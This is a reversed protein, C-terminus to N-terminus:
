NSVQWRGESHTLNMQWLRTASGAAGGSPGKDSPTSFQKAPDSSMKGGFARILSAYGQARTRRELDSIAPDVSVGVFLDRATQVMLRPNLDKTMAFVEEIAQAGSRIESLREESTELRLGQLSDAARDVRAVFSDVTEKTPDYTEMLIKQLEEVGPAASAESMTPSPLGRPGEGSVAEEELAEAREEGYYAAMLAKWLVAEQQMTTSVGDRSRVPRM